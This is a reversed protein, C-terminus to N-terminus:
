QRELLTSGYIEDWGKECDRLHKNEVRKLYQRPNKIDFYILALFNNLGNCHEGQIVLEKKWVDKVRKKGYIDMLSSIEDIDM